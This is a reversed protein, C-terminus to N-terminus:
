VTPLIGYIKEYVKLRDEQALLRKVEVMAEKAVHYHARNNDSRAESAVIELQELVTM